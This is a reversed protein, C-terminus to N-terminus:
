SPDFFTRPGRDTIGSRALFMTGLPPTTPNTPTWPCWPGCNWASHLFDHAPATNSPQDTDLSVVTRLELGLPSFPRWPRRQQTSRHGLVGRDTIGSRALSKTGLPPTAPNIQTWPCWPGYNWASHPFHQGPAANNPQDTDLSVATPLELGLASFRAWPSSPRNRNRKGHERYFVISMPPESQM